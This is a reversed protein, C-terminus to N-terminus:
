GRTPPGGAEAIYRREGTRPDTYVRMTAHTTPDVFVEDTRRFRSELGGSEGGGPGPGLGGHEAQESRYRTVERAAVFLLVAGSAGLWVAVIIGELGGFIAAALAGVVLLAGIVGLLLRIVSTGIV